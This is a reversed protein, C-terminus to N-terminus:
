VPRLRPPHAGFAAGFAFKYASNRGNASKRLQEGVSARVATVDLGMFALGHIYLIMPFSSMPGRM